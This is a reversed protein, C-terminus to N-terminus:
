KALIINENNLMLKRFGFTGLKVAIEDYHGDHEICIMKLRHLFDNPITRFLNINTGEVDINLFDVDSGHVSILTNMSMSQVQIPSYKIKYEGEEWKKKHAIDTTGIADGGVTDYFDIYGDNETIAVQLLQIRPDFEYVKKIRGMCTPSPEVLVGRWGQELLKRSNSFTYPDFSGIEILKGGRGNLDRFHETIFHEENNQSFYKM